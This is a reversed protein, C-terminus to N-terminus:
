TQMENFLMLILRIDIEFSLLFEVVQHASLFNHRRQTDFGTREDKIKTVFWARLPM